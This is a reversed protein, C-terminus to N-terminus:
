RMVQTPRVTGRSRTMARRVDHIQNGPRDAANERVNSKMTALQADSTPLNELRPTGRIM